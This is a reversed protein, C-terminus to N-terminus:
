KLTGIYDSCIGYCELSKLNILEHINTNLEPMVIVSNKTIQKGPYTWIIGKSTLTFDDNQHWFYNMNVQSLEYLSNIDKCHVWLFPEREILWKWDIEYQPEDHGLFFKNESPNFRIDIEVDFGNLIANEIQSPKNENIPDPGNINGRHAILRM